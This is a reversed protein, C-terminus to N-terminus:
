PALGSSFDRCEAPLQSNPGAPVLFQLSVDRLTEAPEYTCLIARAVYEVWADNEEGFASEAGKISLNLPQSVILAFRHDSLQQYFDQLYPTARAMAMEMLYTREYDPILEVDEVNDFILLQRESLFLVEGEDQRARDIFTHMQQLGEQVAASPIPEVPAGAQLMYVVPLFVVAAMLAWHPRTVPQLPTEEWDVRDYYLCAAVVLLLFLYGDLNHLNNGGGIKVSVVLGGAFFVALLGLLGLLRLWHMRWGARALREVILIFIPLSVVLISPLIGEPYTPNPLLRYWLLDSTFSTSFHELENGSWAAYAFQSALGAAMSIAFWGAPALLYRWLPQRGVRTELLFLAAALAGPMPIWNVRSIGAWLAALLVFIATRTFRRSDYGLLVIILCISLHYYIPGQYIFLFAWLVFLWWRRPPQLRLHRALLAVAALPLALWLLVQWFRHFWLPLAPLLYPVSQLLYRSPHLVPPPVQLGYIQESFFLSAFYYRSTESWGMSFPYSTIEPFFLVVRYGCALVLSSAAVAPLFDLDPFASRLLLGGGLALLAFVPLRHALDPFFRGYSGIVLWGMLLTAGLLYLGALVKLAAASTRSAPRYSALKQLRPRGTQTWSMALLAGLAVAALAALGIGALWRRSSTLVGLEQAQNFLQLAIAACSLLALLLCARLGTLRETNM